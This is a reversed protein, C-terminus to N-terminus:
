ALNKAFEPATSSRCGRACLSGCATSSQGSKLNSENRWRVLEQSTLWINQLREHRINGIPQANVFSGCARVDGHSNVRITTLGPQCGLCSSDKNYYEPGKDLGPDLGPILPLMVELRGHFRRKSVWLGRLIEIVESEPLSLEGWNDEGLGSQIMSQIKVGRVGLSAAFDLFTEVDHKNPRQIVYALVIQFGQSLAVRIGSMTKEFRGPGRISDNIGATSGDLSIQLFKLGANFLSQALEPTLLSANTSMAVLVGGARAARVIDVIHPYLLPEGGAISLHFVKTDILHQVFSLAEDLSLSTRDSLQKSSFYCHKCRYNCLHTIDWGVQFPM